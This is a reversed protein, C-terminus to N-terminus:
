DIEATIHRIQRGSRGTHVYISADVDYMRKLLSETMVEDATGYSWKDRAELALVSADAIFAHDPYHTTFAVGIGEKALNMIVGLLRMQNGFDLSAAPEDMLIYETQQALARAILVLQREGGSIETYVADRLHSIGMRELMVDHQHAPPRM